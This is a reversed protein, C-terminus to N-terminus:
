NAFPNVTFLEKGCCLCHTLDETSYRYIARCEVCRGPETLSGGKARLEVRDLMKQILESTASAPALQQPVEYQRQDPTIKRAVDLKHYRKV